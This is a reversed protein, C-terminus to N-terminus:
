SSLMLLNPKRQVTGNMAKYMRQTSIKKGEALEKYVFM